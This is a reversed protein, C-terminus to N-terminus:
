ADAIAYASAFGPEALVSWNERVREDSSRKQTPIRQSRPLFSRPRAFTFASASAVTAAMATRVASVFEPTFRVTHYHEIVAEGDDARAGV